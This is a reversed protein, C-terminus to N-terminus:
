NNRQIQSKIKGILADFTVPKKIICGKEIGAVRGKVEDEQLEYATIFCVKAKGDIKLLENCLDFGDIEPLRVDILLLDYVGPEFSSIASKPNDYVDVVFGFKELGYKIVKTINSEDDVYLIRPKRRSEDEKPPSARISSPLSSTFTNTFIGSIASKMSTTSFDFPLNQLSTYHSMLNELQQSMYVCMCSYNVVM